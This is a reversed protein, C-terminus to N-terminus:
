GRATRSPLHTQRGLRLCAGSKSAQVTTDALVAAPDSYTAALISNAHIDFLTQNSNM